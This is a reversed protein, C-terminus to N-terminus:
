LPAISIGWVIIVILLLMTIMRNTLFYKIIKNLM